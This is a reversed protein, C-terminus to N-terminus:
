TIKKEPVYPEWTEQPVGNIAIFSDRRKAGWYPDPGYLVGDQEQITASRMEARERYWEDLKMQMESHPDAKLKDPPLPPSYKRVKKADKEDAIFHMQILHSMWNFAPFDDPTLHWKFMETQVLPEKSRDRFPDEKWGNKTSLGPLADFSADGDPEDCLFVVNTPELREDKTFPDNPDPLAEFAMGKEPEECFIVMNPALFLETQLQKPM